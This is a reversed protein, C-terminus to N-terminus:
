YRRYRSHTGFSSEPLTYNRIREKELREKEEMKRLKSLEEEM